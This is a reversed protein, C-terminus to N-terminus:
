CVEYDIAWQDEVPTIMVRKTSTVKTTDNWNYATVNLTSDAITGNFKSWVSVTGTSNANIDADAVGLYRVARFRVQGYNDRWSRLVADSKPCKLGNIELAGDGNTVTGTILSTEWATGNWQVEEWDHKSNADANATLRIQTDRGMFSYVVPPSDGSDMGEIALPPTAQMKRLRRLEKYIVNIHCPELMDGDKLDEFDRSM